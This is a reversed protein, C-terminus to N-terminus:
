RAFSPTATASPTLSPLAAPTPFVIGAPLCVPYAQFDVPVPTSTISRAPALSATHTIEDPLTNPRRGLTTSISFRGPSLSLLGLKQGNDRIKALFANSDQAIVQGQLNTAGGLLIEGNPLAFMGLVRTHSEGPLGIYGFNKEWLLNGQPDLRALWQVSHKERTEGSLLLGGEPTNTVAFISVGGRSSTIIRQWNLSGNPKLSILARTEGYDMEAVILYGNPLIFIQNLYEADPPLRLTSQWSMGGSANLKMLWIDYDYGLEEYSHTGALLAGGDSTPQIYDLTEVGVLKGYVYQFVDGAGTVKIVKIDTNIPRMYHSTDAYQGAYAFIAGGDATVDNYAQSDKISFQWLPTGTDSYRVAQGGSVTTFGGDTNRFLINAHSGSLVAGTAPDLELVSDQGNLWLRGDPQPQLAANLTPYLNQWDIEGEPSLKALWDGVLRRHSGILYYSGDPAATVYRINLSNGLYNYAWAYDSSEPCTPSTVPTLTATALHSTDPTPTNDGEIANLAPELTATAPQTAAPSLATQEAQITPAAPAAQSCASVVLTFFTTIGLFRLNM